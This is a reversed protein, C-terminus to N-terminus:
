TWPAALMASKRGAASCGGDRGVRARLNVIGILRGGTQSVGKGIGVHGPGIRHRRSGLDRGRSEGSFPTNSIGEATNVRIGAQRMALM